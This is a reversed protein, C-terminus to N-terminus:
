VTLPIVCTSSIVGITFTISLVVIISLISLGM